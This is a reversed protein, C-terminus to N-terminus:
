GFRSLERGTTVDYAHVLRIAPNSVRQEVILVPGWVVGLLIDIVVGGPGHAFERIYLDNADRVHFHETRCHFTDAAFHAGSASHIAIAADIHDIVVSIVTQRRKTITQLIHCHVGRFFWKLGPSVLKAAAREDDALRGQILQIPNDLFKAYLNLGHISGWNHLRMRQPR